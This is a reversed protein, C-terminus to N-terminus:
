DATQWYSITSKQEKKRRPKKQANGGAKLSHAYARVKHGMLVGIFSWNSRMLKRYEAVRRSRPKRPLFGRDTNVPAFTTPPRGAGSHKNSVFTSDPLSLFLPCDREVVRPRKILSILSTPCLEHTQKTKTTFSHIFLVCLFINNTSATFLRQINFSSEWCHLASILKLM